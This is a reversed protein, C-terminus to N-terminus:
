LEQPLVILGKEPVQKRLRMNFTAIPFKNKVAMTLILKDNFKSLPLEESSIIELSRIADDREEAMLVSKSHLMYERVKELVDRVGVGLGKMFWVYEDAVWPQLRHAQLHIM